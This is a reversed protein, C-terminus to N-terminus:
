IMNKLKWVAFRVIESTVFSIEGVRKRGRSIRASDSLADCIVYFLIRFDFISPGRKSSCSSSFRLFWSFGTGFTAPEFGPRLWFKQGEQFSNCSTYKLWKLPQPIIKLKSIVFFDKKSFPLLKPGPRPEFGRRESSTKWPKQPKWAATAWFPSKRNKIKSDQKM